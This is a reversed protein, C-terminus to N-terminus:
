KGGGDTQGVVDDANICRIAGKGALIPLEGALTHFSITLHREFINARDDDSGKGRGDVRLKQQFGGLEADAEHNALIEFGSGKDKGGVAGGVRQEGTRLGVDGGLELFAEPLFGDIGLAHVLKGERRLQSGSVFTEGAKFFQGAAAEWGLLRFARFCKPPDEGVVDRFGVIEPPTTVFTPHVVQEVVAVGYQKGGNELVEEGDSEIGSEADGMDDPFVGGWEGVVEHFWETGADIPAHGLPHSVM